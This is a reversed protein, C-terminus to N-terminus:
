YKTDDLEHSSHFSYVLNINQTEDRFLFGRIFICIELMMKHQQRQMAFEVQGWDFGIQVVCKINAGSSPDPSYVKTHVNRLSLV